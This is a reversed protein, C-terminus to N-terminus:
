TFVHNLLIEMMVAQEVNVVEQFKNILIEKSNQIVKEADWQGNMYNKYAQNEM